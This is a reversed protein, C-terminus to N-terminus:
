RRINQLSSAELTWFDREIAAKLKSSAWKNYKFANVMIQYKPEMGGGLIGDGRANGAPDRSELM